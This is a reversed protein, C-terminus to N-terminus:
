QFYIILFQKGFNGGSSTQFGAMHAVSHLEDCDRYIWGQLHSLLVWPPITQKQTKIKFKSTTQKTHKSVTEIKVFIFNLPTKTSSPFIRTSLFSWAQVFQYTALESNCDGCLNTKEEEQPPKM